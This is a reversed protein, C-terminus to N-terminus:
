FKKLTVKINAFSYPIDRDSLIPESSVDFVWRETIPYGQLVEYSVKALESLRERNPARQSVAAERPTSDPVYINVNLTAVQGDGIANTLTNIVMFEGKMSRNSPYQPYRDKYMTPVVEALHSNAVWDWVIDFIELSTLNM